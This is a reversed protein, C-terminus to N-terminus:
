AKAPVEIGNRKAYEEVAERVMDTPSMRKTWHLEDWKEHFEKSVTASVQVGKRDRKEATATPATEAPKTGQSEPATENAPAEIKAM